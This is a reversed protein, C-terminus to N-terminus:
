LVSEALRRPIHSAVGRTHQANAYERAPSRRIMPAVAIQM